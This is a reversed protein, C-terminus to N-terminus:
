MWFTKKRILSLLIKKAGRKRTFFSVHIERLAGVEPLFHVYFQLGKAQIRLHPVRLHVELDVNHLIFALFFILM